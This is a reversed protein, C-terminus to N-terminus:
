LILFTHGDLVAMDPDKVPYRTVTGDKEIDLYLTKNTKDFLWQDKARSKGTIASAIDAIFKFM